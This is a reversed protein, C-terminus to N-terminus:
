FDAAGSALPTNTSASNPLWLSAQCATRVGCSRVAGSLYRGRLVTVVSKGRWTRGSACEAGVARNPRGRVGANAVLARAEDRLDVSLFGVDRGSPLEPKRRSVGVVEWGASLFKEIAAIGLLGSAGTVLVKKQVTKSQNTVNM